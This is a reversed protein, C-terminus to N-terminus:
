QKAEKMKTKVDLEVEKVKKGAHEVTFTIWGGNKDEPRIDEVFVPGDYLPLKYKGYKIRALKDHARLVTYGLLDYETELLNKTLVNANTPEVGDKLQLYLLVLNLNRTDLGMEWYKNVLRYFNKHWHVGDDFPVTSEAQAAAAASKKRRVGALNFPNLGKTAFFCFAGQRDKVVYKGFQLLYGVRVHREAAIGECHHIYLHTGKCDYFRDAEKRIRRDECENAGFNHMDPVWFTEEDGPTIHQTNSYNM